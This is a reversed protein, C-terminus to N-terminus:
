GPRLYGESFTQPREKQVNQLPSDARLAGRVESVCRAGTAPCLNGGKRKDHTLQVSLSGAISLPDLLVISGLQLSFGGRAM